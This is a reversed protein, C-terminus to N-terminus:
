RFIPGGHSTHLLTAPRPLRRKNTAPTRSSAVAHEVDGGDSLGSADPADVGAGPLRAGGGVILGVGVGSALQGGTSGAAGSGADAARVEDDRPDSGGTGPSRRTRCPTRRPADHAGSAAIVSLKQCVSLRPM